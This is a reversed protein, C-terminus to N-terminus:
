RGSSPSRWRTGGRGEHVADEGVEGIRDELDHDDRMSIPMPRARKPPKKVQHPATALM